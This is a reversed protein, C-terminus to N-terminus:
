CGPSIVLFCLFIKTPAGGGRKGGWVGRPSPSLPLLSLPSSLLSPPPPPPPPFPPPPPPPCWCTLPCGPSVELSSRGCLQVQRWTFQPKKQADIQIHSIHRNHPLLHYQPQSTISPYLSVQPSFHFYICQSLIDLSLFLSFSLYPPSLSLFFYTSFSLCFFLTDQSTNVLRQILRCPSLSSLQANHRKSNWELLLYNGM